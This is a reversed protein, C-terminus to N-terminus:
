FLTALSRLFSLSPVFFYEGGKTKVVDSFHFAKKEASVGWQSSWEQSVQPVGEVAQGILPDIGTEGKVFHDNNCWTNQMFIFQQEINSQLSIFLLGTDTWEEEPKLDVPGYSIGRRVIRRSRELTQPAGFLRMTDYRPNTKRIHAHFPCRAGETDHDYNFNNFLRTQGGEKEESLPTGDQFRGVALAAAYEPSINAEKDESLVAALEKSKKWFGKVNQQLKRYVLYSGYSHRGGGPDKVLITSLPASPDFRHFGGDDFAEKLDRKFFLPNSVGDVFGFHEIVQGLDNRMVHGQQLFVVEAIGDLEKKLQSYNEHLFAQAEEDTVEKGAYALLIFAHIEEQFPAEWEEIKDKLPNSQRQHDGWSVTDYQQDLDKMGARWATDMPWLAEPVGLTQYGKAALMVSTFLSAIGEDKHNQSQEDQRSASTLSEAFASLWIRCAKANHFRLFVHLSHDRGHSKLLNGQLDSFFDSYNPDNIDINTQNLDIAM